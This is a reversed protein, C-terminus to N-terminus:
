RAMQELKTKNLKTLGSDTITILHKDKFDSLTRNLSETATDILNAIDKRAIMISDIFM